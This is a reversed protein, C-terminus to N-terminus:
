LDNDIIHQIVSEKFEDFTTHDKSFDGFSFVDINENNEDYINCTHNNNTVFYLDNYKLCIELENEVEIRTKM